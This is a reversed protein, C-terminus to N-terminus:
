VVGALAHLLQARFHEQSFNQAITLGKQTAAEQAPAPWDLVQRLAAAHQAAWTDLEGPEPTPLVLAAAGEFHEALSSTDTIILPTGCALAELAPWGFGEIYSPMCLAQAARMLTNIQTATMNEFGFLEVRHAAALSKEQLTPAAGAFVLAPPTPTLKKLEGMLHIAGARNKYWAASGVHLVYRRPLLNQTRWLANQREALEENDVPPLEHALCLPAITTRQASGPLFAQLDAATAVSPTIFGECSNLGALTANQVFRRGFGTPQDFQGLAARAAILDSVFAIRPFGNLAGALLGLSQDSLLVIFDRKLEKAQKQMRLLKTRLLTPSLTLREALSVARQAAPFPELLAALPASPTLSIVEIGAASLQRSILACLQRISHFPQHAFPEILAVTLPNNM